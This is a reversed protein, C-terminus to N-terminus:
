TRLARRVMAEEDKVSEVLGDLRADLLKTLLLGVEPGERVGLAMLDDGDLLPRVHRLEDLYLRLWKAVKPHAAALACSEVARLDHGHLMRYVRSRAVNEDELEYLRGRVAAVDRVLRAWDSNLNLREVVSEMDGDAVSQVMSGLLLHARRANDGTETQLDRLTKQEAQLRPHIAALVGLKGAMEIMDGARPEQFIREIEHRVRDPSITHVYPLSRELLTATCSELRFDLRCAYRIARLIRTADDEFSRDHLVRIVGRSLDTVGDHPDLLTGWSSEGLSIAMANISFDRRALDDEVTGPIVTPLAGPREYTERRATALDVDVGQITLSWTGFASAKRVNVDGRGRISEVLREASGSAMIDIDTLPADALVDRVSGGILYLDIGLGTAPQSLERLVSLRVSALRQELRDSVNM